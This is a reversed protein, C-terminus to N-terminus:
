RSKGRRRRRRGAVLRRLAAKVRKLPEDWDGPSRQRYLRLTPYWPSTPRGELWRWDAPEPLLVWAPKALAGAIHAATGDGTIVLDVAAIAAALEEPRGARVSLDAVAPRGSKRKGPGDRGLAFYRVGDFGLLQDLLGAPLARGAAAAPVLGVRLAGARGVRSRWAELRKPPVALYPVEAPVKRLRTKFLRPLSALPVHVDCRPLREGIAVVRGVGAAGRLLAQLPKRCLLTVRGGREAVLAAYRAFQVADESAADAHVLISRGALPGGDWVAGPLKRRLRASAEAQWRREYEAFGEAFRGAGLLALAREGRARADDPSLALAKDVARLAAERGGTERLTRALELWADAFRPVVAVARRLHDAASKADGEARALLGLHYLAGPVEPNVALAQRFASAAEDKAGLALFALGLSYHANALRPDLAVARRGSEVAKEAQGLGILAAAMDAHIAANNPALGLSRGFAEVAEELRDAAKAIRGLNGHYLAVDAKLGIAKRVLGLAEELRGQQFAILGRLHTADAHGPERALVARYAEDAAELRGAEHQRIGGELLANVEPTM